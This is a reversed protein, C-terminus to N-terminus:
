CPFHPLVIRRPVSKFLPLLNLAMIFFRFNIVLVSLLIVGISAGSNFFSLMKYQAPGAFVVATMMVAQVLSLSSSRSLAGIAFFSIMFSIAVPVSERLGLVFSHHLRSTLSVDCQSAVAEQPVLSSPM